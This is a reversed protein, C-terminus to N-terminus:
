QPPLLAPRLIPLRRCLRLGHLSTNRGPIPHRERAFFTAASIAHHDSNSTTNTSCPYNNSSGKADFWCLFEVPVTM